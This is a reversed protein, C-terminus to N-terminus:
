STGGITIQDTPIATLIYNKGGVSAIRTIVQSPSTDPQGRYEPSEIVEILCRFFEDPSLGPRPTPVVPEVGAEYSDAEPMVLSPEEEYFALEQETLTQEDEADFALAAYVAARDQYEQETETTDFGRWPALPTSADVPEPVVVAEPVVRRKPSKWFWVKHNGDWEVRLCPSWGAKLQYGLRLAKTLSHIDGPYSIAEKIERASFRQDKNKKVFKHLATVTDKTRWPVHVKPTPVAETVEDDPKVFYATPTPVRESM